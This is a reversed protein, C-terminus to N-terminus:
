SGNKGDTDPKLEKMQQAALEQIEDYRDYV